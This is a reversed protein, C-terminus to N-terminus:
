WLVVDSRTEFYCFGYLRGSLQVHRWVCLVGGCVSWIAEDLSTWLTVGESPCLTSGDNCLVRLGVTATGVFWQDGAWVIWLGM